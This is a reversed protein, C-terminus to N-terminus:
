ACRASASVCPTTVFTGHLPVHLADVIKLWVDRYMGEGTYWRSTHPKRNDYTVTVVNDGGCVAPETIDHEFGIYGNLHRGLYRGNVWVQADRYVGEFELLLRKGDADAPLAFHKPYVGAGLPIWGNASSSQEYDFARGVAADHPLHVRKLKDKRYLTIFGNIWTYLDNVSLIFGDIKFQSM